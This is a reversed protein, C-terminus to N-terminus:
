KVVVYLFHDASQCSRWLEMIFADDPVAFLGNIVREVGSDIGFLQLVEGLTATAVVPKQIVKMQEGGIALVRVPVSAIERKRGKGVEEEGREKREAAEREADMQARIEDTKKQQESRTDEKEHKLEGMEYDAVVRDNVLKYTEFDGVGVAGWMQETMEQTIAMGMRANGHELFLAQKLQQCFFHKTTSPGEYGLLVDSPYSSFHVTLKWPLHRITQSNQSVGNKLQHIDFLVGVPLNFRQPQKDVSFWVTSSTSTLSSGRLAEVAESAAAHLYSMRPLMLHIPAPAALDVVDYSSLNIECPIQGHWSLGQAGDNLNM